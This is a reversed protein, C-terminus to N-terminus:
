LLCPKTSLVKPCFTTVITRSTSFIVEVVIISRFNDFVWTLILGYPLVQAVIQLLRRSYVCAHPLFNSIRVIPHPSTLDTFYLYWFFRIVSLGWLLSPMASETDTIPSSFLGDDVDNDEPVVNSRTRPPLIYHLAVSHGIITTILIQVVMM